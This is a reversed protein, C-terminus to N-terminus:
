EHPARPGTEHDDVVDHRLPVGVVVGRAAHAPVPITDEHRPVGCLRGCVVGIRHDEIQFPRSRRRARAGARLSALCPRSAGARSGITPFVRRASDERHVVPPVDREVHRRAPEAGGGNGLARPGEVDLEIEESVIQHQARAVPPLVVEGQARARYRLEVAFVARQQAVGPDVQLHPRHRDLRHFRNREGLIARVGGVVGVRDLTEPASEHLRLVHELSETAREQSFATRHVEPPPAAIQGASAKGAPRGGYMGAADRVEGVPRRALRVRVLADAGAPPRAISLPGHRLGGEVRIRVLGLPQGFGRDSRRQTSDGPAARISGATRLPAFRPRDRRPASRRERSCTRQPPPGRGTPDWARACPARETWPMPFRMRLLIRGSRGLRLEGCARRGTSSSPSPFSAPVACPTSRLRGGDPAVAWRTTVATSTVKNIPHKFLSKAVGLEFHTGTTVDVAFFEDVPSKFFLERGDARWAVSDAGGSSIQWKGGGPPLTQVYAERTGSENSTYAVYRGDPSFTAGTQTIDAVLYDVLKGDGQTPFLKVQFRRSAPLYGLAIWKGDKSWGMPGVPANPDSFLKHEDGAGNAEKVYLGPNGGLDSAYAVRNGDPSWVPWFENGTGFTLRSPIDRKLDLVWVDEAGNRPDALGYALRMGDPSRSRAIPPLLASSEWSEEKVISGSWSPTPARRAPCTSSRERRRCRSRRPRTPMPTVHEALPVPQGIVALKDPDFRQAVLTGDLVYLLHGNAYEVRSNSPTLPTSATDGLTGLKIMAKKDPTNAMALFLFHKGDPLFFPWAHGVEGKSPDPQTAQVPTGGTVDVRQIPDVARADFLITGGSGWTGDSGSSGEYILQAAGGTPPVERLQGRNFYAIFRSDPSWWPRSSGETGPLEQAEFADLRRVWIANKGAENRALFAIMTGDPSLRPWVMSSM